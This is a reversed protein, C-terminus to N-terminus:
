MHPASITAGHGIIQPSDHYPDGTVLYHRRDVALMAREVEPSKIIGARKLNHVLEANTAGSCRWAMKPISKTNLGLSPERQLGKSSQPSSQLRQSGRLTLWYLTFAVLLVGLSWALHRPINITLSLHRLLGKSQSPHRHNLSPSRVTIVRNALLRVCLRTSSFRSKVQIKGQNKRISAYIASFPCKPRDCRVELLACFALGGFPPGPSGAVLGAFSSRQRPRPQPM